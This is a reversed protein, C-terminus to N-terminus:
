VDLLGEMCDMAGANRMGAKGRGSISFRDELGRSEAGYGLM